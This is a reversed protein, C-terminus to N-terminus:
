LETLYTFYTSLLVTIIITTNFLYASMLNETLTQNSRISTTLLQCEAIPLYSSSGDEDIHM